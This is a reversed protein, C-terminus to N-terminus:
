LQGSEHIQALEKRRSLNLMALESQERRYLHLKGGM